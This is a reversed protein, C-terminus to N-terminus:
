QARRATAWAVVQTRRQLGMKALVSTVHNKVTKEGIDLEDAIEKNALGQGVLTLDRREMPTLRSLMDDEHVDIHQGHERGTAADKVAQLVEASSATKALFVDAGASRAAAKADDDAATADAEAQADDPKEEGADTAKETAGEPTDVAGESRTARGEMVADAMSSVILRISRIADDNGPIPFDIPDPDCNTDVIAVVPIGLKNAEAVAIKELRTDIVIVASPLGTMEKIGELNRVLKTRERTLSLVERKR